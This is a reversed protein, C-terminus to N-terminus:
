QIKSLVEYNYNMANIYADLNKEGTMESDLVYVIAGTEKAITDAVKSDDNKDIFIMKSNSKKMDSIINKVTEASLSNQEHDTEIMTTNIKLDNLLYELSENLCIANKGNLNSIGNFKTKIEDIKQIYARANEEYISANISNNESLKSAIEKVESEYNDLGLWVHGNKDGDEDEIFNSISDACNIIKVNPYADIVKQSFSELGAGNQIFINTDEFKKLDATSLTYDHICGTIKDAMNGVEVNQAGNTINLTMIYLPYFSTLVKYNNNSKNKTKNLNGIIIVAFFIAILIIIIIYKKKM